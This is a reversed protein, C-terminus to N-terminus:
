FSWEVGVRMFRTPLPTTRTAFAPLRASDHDDTFLIAMSAVPKPEPQPTTWSPKVAQQGPLEQRPPLAEPAPLVPRPMLVQRPQLVQAPLARAPSQSGALRGQAVRDVAQAPVCAALCLAIVALEKMRQM